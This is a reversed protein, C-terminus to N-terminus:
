CYEKVHFLLGDPLLTLTQFIKVQFLPTPKGKRTYVSRISAQSIGFLALRETVSFFAQGKHIIRFGLPFATRPLAVAALMMSYFPTYAM